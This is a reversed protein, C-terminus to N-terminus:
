EAKDEMSLASNFAETAPRRSAKQKEAEKLCADAVIIKDAGISRIQEPAILYKTANLFSGGVLYKKVQHTETQLEVDYVKGLKQGSETFVPLNILKKFNIIM